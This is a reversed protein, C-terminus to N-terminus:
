KTFNGDEKRWIQLPNEDQLESPLAMQPFNGAGFVVLPGETSPIEIRYQARDAFRRTSDGSIDASKFDLKELAQESRQM